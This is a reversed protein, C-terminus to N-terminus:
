FRLSDLGYANRDFLLVFLTRQTQKDELSEVITTHWGSLGQHPMAQMSKYFLETEAEIEDFLERMMNPLSQFAKVLFVAVSRTAEDMSEFRFQPFLYRVRHRYLRQKLDNPQFTRSHRYHSSIVEIRTKSLHRRYENRLLEIKHLHPTALLLNSQLNKVILPFLKEKYFAFVSQNYTVSEVNRQDVEMLSREVRHISELRWPALHLKQQDTLVSNLADFLYDEEEWLSLSENLNLVQLQQEWEHMAIAQDVTLDFAKFRLQYVEVLPDNSALAM